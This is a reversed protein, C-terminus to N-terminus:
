SREEKAPRAHEPGSSRKGSRRRVLALALVVGLLALPGARGHECGGNESGGGQQYQEWFDNVAVPAGFTLESPDSANGSESYALVTVDYTTGNDLGTIRASKGSTESSEFTLGGAAAFARYTRSTASASSTATGASWSVNLANEGATTAVSTPAPPSALQVKLRASATAVVDGSSSLLEVCLYIQTDEGTCDGPSYGAASFADSLPLASDGSSPYTGSTSSASIGDVLTGTTISSTSSSTSCGSANSALIQYQAGSSSSFDWTLQIDQSARDVCEARSITADDLTLTAAGALAPSVATSVALLLWSARAPLERLRPAFTAWEHEPSIM